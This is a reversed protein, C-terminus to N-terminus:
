NALFVEKELAPGLGILWIPVRRWTSAKLVGNSLAGSARKFSNIENQHTAAILLVSRKKMERKLYHFFVSEPYQLKYKGDSDFSATVESSSAQHFNDLAGVSTWTQHKWACAAHSACVFSHYSISVFLIIPFKVLFWRKLWVLSKSCSWSTRIAEGTALLYYNARFILMSAEQALLSISSDPTVTVPGLPTVSTHEGPIGSM